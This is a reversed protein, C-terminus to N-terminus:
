RGGATPFALRVADQRGGVRVILGFRGIESEGQCVGWFPNATLTFKLDSISRNPRITLTPPTQRLRNPSM